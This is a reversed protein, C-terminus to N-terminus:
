EGKVKADLSRKNIAIYYIFGNKNFSSGGNGAYVASSESKSGLHGHLMFDAFPGKWRRRDSSFDLVKNVQRGALEYIDGNQSVKFFNDFFHIPNHALYPKDQGKGYAFLDGRRVIEDKGDGNNDYFGLIASEWSGSGAVKKASARHHLADFGIVSLNSGRSVNVFAGGQYFLRNSGAWGIGEVPLFEGQELPQAKLRSEIESYSEHQLNLKRAEYYIARAKAYSKADLAANCNRILGEFHERAAKRREGETRKEEEAKKRAEEKERRQKEEYAKRRREAEIAAAKAAEEKRKKNREQLEFSKRCLDRFYIVPKKYKSYRYKNNLITTASTENGNMYYNLIVEMVSITALDEGLRDLEELIITKKAELEAITPGMLVPALKKFDRIAALDEKSFIDIKGDKSVLGNAVHHSIQSETWGDLKKPASGLKDFFRIFTLKGKAVKGAVTKLYAEDESKSPPVYVIRNQLVKGEVEEDEKYVLKWKSGGSKEDTAKGSSASGPGEKEKEGLDLVVGLGGLVLLLIAGLVGFVVLTKPTASKKDGSPRPRAVPESDPLFELDEDLEVVDEEEVKEAEEKMKRLEARLSGLFETASSIRKDVHQSSKRYLADWLPGNKLRENAETVMEVGAPRRGTLMEFLLVGCSFVDSAPGATQGERVEPAMYPLSGAIRDNQESSLSVSNKLQSVSGDTSNSLSLGFDSVCPQGDETILINDPKVDRHTIGQDHAVALGGLIGNLYKLVLREPLGKGSERIKSKLNGRSYFPMVVYPRDASRTDADIIPVVNPHQIDPLGGERSLQRRFESSKAVKIAVVKGPREHHHAKWIQAFAGEGIPEDLIYNGVRDNKRPTAM